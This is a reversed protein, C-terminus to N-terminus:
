IINSHRRTKTDTYPQQQSANLTYLKLVKTLPLQAEQVILYM